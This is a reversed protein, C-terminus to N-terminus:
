IDVNDFSLGKQSLTGVNKQFNPLFGPKKQGFLM